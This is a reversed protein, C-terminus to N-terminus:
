ARENILELSEVKSRDNLRVRLGNVWTNGEAVKLRTHRGTIFRIRAEETAMGIVGSMSGCMGLDTVYATGGPMIRADATLVHTHTGALVTVRGDLHQAMVQKESTAEAHMDVLVIDAPNNRLISDVTRFPCDLAMPIFLRGQLNIVLIRLGAVTRVLYGRGPNGPPYNAPRLVPCDNQDIYDLVEKHQWIHNGTTIIDLGGDLLEGATKKTLGFGGAANEGNALAFDFERDKLYSVLAARGPRGVVDGFFLLEM